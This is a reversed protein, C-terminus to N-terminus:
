VLNNLDPFHSEMHCNSCLLQCKEAEVLLNEMSFKKINKGELAFIKQSPDRHHFHLAALNKNYGCSECMAGKLIILELRRTHARLKRSKKTKYKDKNKYNCSCSCYKKQQGTLKQGCIICILKETM